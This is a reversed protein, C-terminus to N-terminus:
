SESVLGSIYPKGIELVRGIDPYDVNGAAAVASGASAWTVTGQGDVIYASSIKITMLSYVQELENVAAALDSDIRGSQIEGAIELEALARGMIDDLYGAVLQATKLREALMTETSQNVARIGLFSFIGIGIVLGVALLLTIKRGLTLRNMFTM